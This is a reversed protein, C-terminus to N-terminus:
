TSLSRHIQGFVSNLHSWLNALTALFPWLCLLEDQIGIAVLPCVTNPAKDATRTLLPIRRTSTSLSRAEGVGTVV